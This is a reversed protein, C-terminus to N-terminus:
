RCRNTVTRTMKRDILAGAGGGIVGGILGGILGTGVEPMDMFGHSAPALAVGVAAGGAAGALFGIFVFVHVQKRYAVRDIDAFPIMVRSEDQTKISRMCLASAATVVTPYVGKVVTDDVKIVTVTDGPRVHNEIRHLCDPSAIDLAGATAAAAFWLGAAVTTTVIFRRM